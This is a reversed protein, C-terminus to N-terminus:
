GLYCVCELGFYSNKFAFNLCINCKTDFINCDFFLVKTATYCLKIM